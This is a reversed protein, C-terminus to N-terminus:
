SEEEDEEFEFQDQIQALLSDIKEQRKKRSALTGIVNILGATLLALLVGVYTDLM